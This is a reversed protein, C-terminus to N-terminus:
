IYDIVLHADLLSVMARQNPDLNCREVLFRVVELQGSQAAAWLLSRSGQM